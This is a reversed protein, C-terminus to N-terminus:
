LQEDLDPQSAAFEAQRNHEKAELVGGQFLRSSEQGFNQILAEFTDALVVSSEQGALSAGDYTDFAIEGQRVAACAV